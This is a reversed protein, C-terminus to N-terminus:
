SMEHRNSHSHTSNRRALELSVNGFEAVSLARYIAQIEKIHESKSSHLKADETAKATQVKKINDDLDAILKQQAKFFNNIDNGNTRSQQLQDLQHRRIEILKSTQFVDIEESIVRKHMELRNEISKFKVEFPQWFLQAIIHPTRKV